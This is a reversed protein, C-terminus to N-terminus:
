FGKEFPGTTQSSELDGDRIKAGQQVLAPLKVDM